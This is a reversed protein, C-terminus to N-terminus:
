CPHPVVAKAPARHEQGRTPSTTRSRTCGSSCCRRLGAAGPRRRRGGRRPCSRRATETQASGGRGRPPGRGEGINDDRSHPDRPPDVYGSHVVDGRAAFAELCHHSVRSSRGAVDDHGARDIANRSGTSRPVPPALEGVRRRRRRRSMARASGSAAPDQKSPGALGCGSCSLEFERATVVDDHGPCGGAISRFHAQTPARRQRRPAAAHVRRPGPVFLKARTTTPETDPGGDDIARRAMLTPDHSGSCRLEGCGWDRQGPSRRSRDDGERARWPRDPAHVPRPGEVVGQASGRRLRPMTTTTEVSLRPWDGMLVLAMVTITTWGGIQCGRWCTLM